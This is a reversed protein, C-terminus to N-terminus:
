SNLYMLIEKEYKRKLREALKFTRAELNLVEGMGEPPYVNVLWGSFDQEIEILAQEYLIGSNLWKEIAIEYRNIRKVKITAM